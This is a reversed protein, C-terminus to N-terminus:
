FYGVFSTSVIDNPFSPIRGIELNATYQAKFVLHSAVDFRVGPSLRVLQAAYVFDTGSEHLAERWDVRVFPMLWNLVRYGVTGYAAQVRLCPAISCRALGPAVRGKGNARGDLFEATVELGRVDLHADFGYQWQSVLDDSQLDQAGYQGSAGFELGAGIPIEYAVRGTITKFQNRDVENYFAFAEQYSSGNTVSAAVSLKRQFFRMRTKLGVPRGCTYRCLLSPTVEIRSPSEQTRYERGFVSDVKGVDIFFDFREVPVNWRLFGLKFDIFDGLFTGQTSSADRSRPVFDVMTYLTVQRGLSADVQLNFANVLFTSKGRSDVSDFGVARSPGTDAPEGRANVATSLPDGLFVWADPVASFEPFSDHGFDSRVGSGNGQAWFFGTDLYGHVAVAFKRKEARREQEEYREEAEIDREVQLEENADELEEVRTKLARVDAKLDAVSEDIAPEVVNEDDDPEVERDDEDVPEDVDDEDVGDDDASEAPPDVDDVSGPEPSSAYASGLSWTAVIITHLASM